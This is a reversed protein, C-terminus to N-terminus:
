CRGIRQVSAGLDRPRAGGGCLTRRAKGQEVPTQRAYKMVDGSVVSEGHLAAASHFENTCKVEKQVGGTSNM